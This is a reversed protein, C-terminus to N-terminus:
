EIMRGLASEACKTIARVDLGVKGWYRPCLGLGLCEEYDASRSFSLEFNGKSAPPLDGPDALLAEIAAVDAHSSRAASATIITAPEAGAQACRALARISDRASLGARAAAELASVDFHLYGPEKHMHRFEKSDEETKLFTRCPFPCSYCGIHRHVLGDFGEGVAGEYYSRLGKNPGLRSLHSQMMEVSGEFHTEPDALELEGMGRFAVAALKRAGFGAGVSVKDEGGWHNVVLQAAPRGDDCWPGGSLVQIKSDGQDSRIKDTRQWSNLQVIEPTEVFEIIGDRIWVYGWKSAKGKLVVFDFGSLKLEVGAHGMLPMTKNGVTVTGACSAPILSGTLLGTGLIVSDQGHKALIGKLSDEGLAIEEVEEEGSEGSSLDIFGVKGNRLNM